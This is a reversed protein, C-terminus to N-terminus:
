CSPMIVIAIDKEEEKFISYIKAVALEKEKEHFAAKEKEINEAQKRNQRSIESAEEVTMGSLINDMFIKHEGDVKKHAKEYEENIAKLQIYHADPETKETIKGDIYYLNDYLNLNVLRSLESDEVLVTDIDPNQTAITNYGVIKDTAYDIILQIM